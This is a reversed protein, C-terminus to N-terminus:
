GRHGKTSRRFIVPFDRRFEGVTATWVFDLSCRVPELPVQIDELYSGKSAIIICPGFIQPAGAFNYSLSSPSSLHCM